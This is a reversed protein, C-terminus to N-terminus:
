FDSMIRALEVLRVQDRLKHLSHARHPITTSSPKLWIRFPPYETFQRRLRSSSQSFTQLLQCLGTKEYLEAELEVVKLSFALLVAQRSRWIEDLVAETRSPIDSPMFIAGDWLDITPRKISRRASSPSIHSALADKTATSSLSM